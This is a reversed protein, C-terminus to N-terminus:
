LFPTLIEAPGHEAIVITQEFHAARSGDRTAITWNDKLTRIAASGANVMPEIAIVLGPQLVTAAIPGRVFFNPVEPAEHVQRGVGHGVLERVIGYGAAKVRKEIARSIDGVTAGPLAAAVGLQLAERTVELLRRDAESVRGVPVTMAMDTCFGGKAPYRMGIDLGVIDGDHLERSPLAPGHVVEGNISVCLTSPFPVSGGATYGLFSPVGGVAQMRERALADLAATQVGPRVQAIVEHLIQALLRGCERIITIEASTYRAM